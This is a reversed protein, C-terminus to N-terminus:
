GVMPPFIFSQGINSSIKTAMKAYDEASGVSPLSSYFANNDPTPVNTAGRILGQKEVALKYQAFSMANESYYLASGLANCLNEQGLIRIPEQMEASYNQGNIMTAKVNAQCAEVVTSAQNQPEPRVFSVIQGAAFLTFVNPGEGTASQGLSISEPVVFIVEDQTTPEITFDVKSESVVNNNADGETLPIQFKASSNAFKDFLKINDAMAALQEKDLYSISQDTGIEIIRVEREGLAIRSVERNPLDMLQKTPTKVSDISNLIQYPDTLVESTVVETNKSTSDGGRSDNCGAISALSLAIAAVLRRSSKSEHYKEVELSEPIM